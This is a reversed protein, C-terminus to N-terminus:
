FIGLKQVALPAHEGVERQHAFFDLVLRITRGTLVFADGVNGDVQSDVRWVTREFGGCTKFGRVKKTKLKGFGLVDSTYISKFYIM